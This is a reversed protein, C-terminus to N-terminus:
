NTNKGAWGNGRYIITPVCYVQKVITNCTPCNILPTSTFSEKKEFKGCTECAYIRIPMYNKLVQKTENISRVIAKQGKWADFFKAQSPTLTGSKGKVELLLNTGGPIGVVLDPV